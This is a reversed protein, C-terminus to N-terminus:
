HTLVKPSKIKAHLAQEAQKSLTNKVRNGLYAHCNCCYVRGSQNRMNLGDYMQENEEESGDFNELYHVSGYVYVSTYFVKAGCFPCCKLETFEM